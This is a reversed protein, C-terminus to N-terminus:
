NRLIEAPDKSAGWYAPPLSALFSVITSYFFVFIFADPNWHGYVVAMSIPIDLEGEMGAYINIGYTQLLYVAFAGMICGLIGGLVGIGGAELALVATIEKIKMGMAKMMGIEQLRELVMLVVTNIIGAVALLLIIGLIFVLVTQSYEEMIKLEEAGEEWTYAQYDYGREAMMNNIEVAAGDTLDSDALRLALHSYDDEVVLARQATELPLYVYYENIQPNPTDLLGVLNLDIVNFAEQRTRVILMFNDGLELQMDDALKEGMVAQQSGAEIFEGAAMGEELRFNERESEPDVARGVVPLDDRGDSLEATFDLRPSAGQVGALDIIEERLGSDIHILSDLPYEEREQWYAPSTIQIHGFQYDTINQYSSEMMGAVLADAFVYFCIIAAIVLATYVTRKKNRALNRLAIKLLM